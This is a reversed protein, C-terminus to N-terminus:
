NEGSKDVKRSWLEMIRWKTYYDFWVTGNKIKKM